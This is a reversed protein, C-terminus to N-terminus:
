VGVAVGVVRAAAVLAADRTFLKLGRRMALELYSADYTTLRHARALALVEDWAAAVSMQDVAIPLASILELRVFVDAPAIRGRREAQLLVNGVELFWLGPVLAGFARVHDLMADTQESAEDKFCWSLAVSADLVAPTM